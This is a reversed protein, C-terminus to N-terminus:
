DKRPFHRQLGAHYRICGTIPVLGRLHPPKRLLGAVCGAALLKQVHGSLVVLQGQPGFLPKRESLTLKRTLNVRNHYKQAKGCSWSVENSPIWGTDGVMEGGDSWTAAVTRTTSSSSTIRSRSLRMSPRAPNATFVATSPRLAMLPKWAFGILATRVSMAIGFISPTSNVRASRVSRGSSGIM